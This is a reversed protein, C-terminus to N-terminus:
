TQLLWTNVFVIMHVYAAAFLYFLGLLALGIAVQACSWGMWTEDAGGGRCATRSQVSDVDDESWDADGGICEGGSGAAGDGVAMSGPSPGRWHDASLTNAPTCGAKSSLGASGAEQQRQLADGDDSQENDDLLPSSALSHRSAHPMQIARDVLSSDDPVEALLVCGSMNSGHADAHARSKLVARLHASIMLMSFVFTFQIHREEFPSLPVVGMWKHMCSGSLIFIGAHNHPRMYWLDMCKHALALIGLLVLVMQRLLAFITVGDHIQRYVCVCM